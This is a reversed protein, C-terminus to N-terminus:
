FASLSALSVTLLATLVTPLTNPPILRVSGAAVDGDGDGYAVFVAVCDAVFGVAVVDVWPVRVAVGVVVCVARTAGVM